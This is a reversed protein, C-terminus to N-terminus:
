KVFLQLSWALLLFVKQQSWVIIIKLSVATFSICSLPGWKRSYVHWESYSFSSVFFYSEFLVFRTELSSAKM